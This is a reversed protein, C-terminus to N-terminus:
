QGFFFEVLYIYFSKYLYNSSTPIKYKVLPCTSRKAYIKHCHSIQFPPSTAYSSKIPKALFM